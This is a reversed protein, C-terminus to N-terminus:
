ALVLLVVVHGIGVLMNVVNIFINVLVCLRADTAVDVFHLAQEVSQRLVLELLQGLKEGVRAPNGHFVPFCVVGHQTGTFDVLQHPFDALVIEVQQAHVQVIHLVIKGSIQCSITPSVHLGGRKDDGEVVQQGSATM